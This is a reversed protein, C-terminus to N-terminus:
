CTFSDRGSPPGCLLNAGEQRRGLALAMCEEEREKDLEWLELGADQVHHTNLLYKSYMYIASLGFAVKPATVAPGNDRFSMKEVATPELVPNPVAQTLVGSPWLWSLRPGSNVM